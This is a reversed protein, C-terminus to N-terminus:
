ESRELEEAMEKLEKATKAGDWIMRYGYLWNTIHNTYDPTYSYKKLIWFPKLNDEPYASSHVIVYKPQNDVQLDSVYYKSYFRKGKSFKM